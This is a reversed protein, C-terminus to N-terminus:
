FHLLEGIRLMIVDCYFKCDNVIMKLPRLKNFSIKGEKKPILKILATLWSEPSNGTEYINNFVETMVHKITGLNEKYFAVPLGDLGPCKNDLAKSVVLELEAVTIDGVNQVFDEPVKPVLSAFKFYEFFRDESQLIPFQINYLDTYKQVLYKVKDNHQTIPPKNLDEPNEYLDGIFLSKQEFNFLKFFDKSCTEDKLRDYIEFEQWVKKTMAAHVKSLRKEINDRLVPNKTKQLQTVLTKAERNHKMAQGRQVKFGLECVENKFNEWWIHNM